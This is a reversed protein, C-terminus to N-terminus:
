FLQFFNTRQPKQVFKIKKIGRYISLNYLKKESNKKFSLSSNENTTLVYNKKSKKKKKM